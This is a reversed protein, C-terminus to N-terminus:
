FLLVIGVVVAAIGAVTVLGELGVLWRSNEAGWDKASEIGMSLAAVLGGGILLFPAWLESLDAINWTWGFLQLVGNDPGWAMWAGFAAAVIGVVAFVASIWHWATDSSSVSTEPQMTYAM